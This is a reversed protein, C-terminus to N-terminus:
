ILSHYFAGNYSYNGTISLFISVNMWISGGISKWRRCFVDDDSLITNKEKCTDFIMYAYDSEREHLISQDDIYKTSPYASFLKDFVNRKLMIFDFSTKDIKTINKHISLSSANDITINYDCLKHQLYLENSFSTNNKDNFVSICNPNTVLNNWNIHEKPCAGSVIYKNSLLMKFIDYPNWIVNNNIFMIHTIGDISMAKAVLNNRVRHILNDDEMFFYKIRIRHIKCLDITGILSNIFGISCKGSYCPILICVFPKHHKVYETIQENM